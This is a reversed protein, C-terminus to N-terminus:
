PETSVTLTLPPSGVPPRLMNLLNAATLGRRTLHFFSLTMALVVVVGIVLVVRVARKHAKEPSM